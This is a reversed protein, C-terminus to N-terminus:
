NIKIILSIFLIEPMNIKNAKLAIASPYSAAAARPNYWGMMRDSPAAYENIELSLTSVSLKLHFSHIVSLSPM